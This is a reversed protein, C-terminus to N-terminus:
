GISNDSERGFRRRVPVVHHKGGIAGAIVQKLIEIFVRSAKVPNFVSAGKAAARVDDAVPRSAQKERLIPFAIEPHGAFFCSKEPKCLLLECSEFDRASQVLVMDQAQGLVTFSVQPESAGM